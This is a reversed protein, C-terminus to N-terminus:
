PILKLPLVSSLRFSPSLLSIPPLHSKTYISPTAFTLAGM